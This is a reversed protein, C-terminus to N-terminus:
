FSFNLSMYNEEEINEISNYNDILTNLKKINIKSPDFWTLHALHNSYLIDNVIVTKNAFASAVAGTGAFVDFVTNVNLGENKIVEEIFSLLKYKNGLYRRNNIKM